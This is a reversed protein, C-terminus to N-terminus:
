VPFTRNCQAAQTVQVVWQSEADVVYLNGDQGITVGEPEAGDDQNDTVDDIQAATVFETLVGAATFRLVSDSADDTFYMNGLVDFVIDNNDNFSPFM